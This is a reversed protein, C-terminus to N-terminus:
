QKEFEIGEGDYELVLEHSTLKIIKYEEKGVSGDIEIEVSEKGDEWNWEGSEKYYFQEGYYTFTLIMAFDHDDEFEYVLDLSDMPGSQYEWEGVLRGKKSMTIIDDYDEDGGCGQLTFIAVGMGVALVKFESNKM